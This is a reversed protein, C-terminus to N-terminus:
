LQRREERAREELRGNACEVREPLDEDGAVAACAIARGAQDHEAHDPRARHIAQVEDRERLTSLERSSCRARWTIEAHGVGVHVGQEEEDQPREHRDGEEGNERRLRHLQTAM